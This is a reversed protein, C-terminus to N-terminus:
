LRGQTVCLWQVMSCAQSSMKVLSSPSLRYVPLSVQFNHDDPMISSFQPQKRSMWLPPDRAMHVAFPVYGEQLGCVTFYQLSGVHRGLNLIGVQNLGVSVM